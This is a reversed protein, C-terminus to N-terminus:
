FRWFGAGKVQIFTSCFSATKQFKQHEWKLTSTHGDRKNVALSSVHFKQIVVCAYLARNWEFIYWHCIEAWSSLSQNLM